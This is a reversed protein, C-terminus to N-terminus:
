KSEMQELATRMIGRASGIKGALLEEHALEIWFRLSFRPQPIHPSM